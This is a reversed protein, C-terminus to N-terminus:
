WASVEGAVGEGQGNHVSSTSDAVPDQWLPPLVHPYAVHMLCLGKAPAAPSPLANRQGTRMLEPVRQACLKGKGVWVLLGMLNRVMQKLFGTGTFQWTCVPWEPPCHMGHLQGHVPTISMLTRVTTIVHSGMNQVFAFDHTGTLYSAACLMAQENLAPVGWCVNHLHPMPGEGGCWLTYAYTKHLAHKRAHFHLPVEEVAVIRIDPPLQRNMARLWPFARCREPLTVHCVQAQAHVGSDTRGAGHVPTYAGMMRFIVKELENQVTPPGPQLPKNQSQWGQYRTGEYAVTLRLRFETPM